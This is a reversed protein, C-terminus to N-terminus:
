QSASVVVHNSGYCRSIDTDFDRYKFGISYANPHYRSVGLFRFIDTCYLSFFNLILNCASIIFFSFYKKSNGIWHLDQHDHHSTVHKCGNGRSGLALSKTSFHPLRLV